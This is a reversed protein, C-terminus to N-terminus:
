PGSLERLKTISYLDMKQTITATPFCRVTIESPIPQRAELREKLGSGAVHFYWAIKVLADPEVAYPAASVWEHGEVYFSNGWVERPQLEGLGDVQLSADRITVRRASANGLEAVVVVADKDQSYIASALFEVEPRQSASPPPVDMKSEVTEPSLGVLGSLAEVIRRDSAARKGALTDATRAEHESKWGRLADVTYTAEDRDILTACSACLWIANGISSREAATMSM